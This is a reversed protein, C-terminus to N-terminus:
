VRGLRPPLSDTKGLVASLLVVPESHPASSPPTPAPPPHQISGSGGGGAAGAGSFQSEVSRGPSGNKAKDQPPHCSLCCSCFSDSSLAHPPPYSSSPSSPLSPPPGRRLCGCCCCRLLELVAARMDRSSLTYILPNLASNLVALGIFWHVQLLLPCRGPECAVDLALLVFLPAWCAVFVGLVIAVTRLLAMSREAAAAAAGGGSGTGGAGVRKGSATVLRYIHMYLGVIAALLGTFVSVCFAVYSKSYLPLVTSCSDLRGLCNWGLSPLAGLLLSLAWCAGLLACLRGWRRPRRRLRLRSRPGHGPRLHAMTSHREIGIALLGFTSASLFVFVSGERALWQAPTLSFTRRGSTFINVLYALGALLDSLALNGLLRFMRGHLRRSRCLALLVALNELVIACCLLLLVAMKYAGAAGSQDRSLKGSHNYHRVIVENMGEEVEM